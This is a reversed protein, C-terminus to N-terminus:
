ASTAQQTPREPQKTGDRQAREATSEADTGATQGHTWAAIQNERLKAFKKNTHVLSLGLADALDPQRFPLPMAAGQALGLAIGRRHLRLLAWAVRELATRQGVSLLADGLFHEEVAALWTIDLARDPHSKFFDWFEGRDFVCLTMDTAAVVSHQMESMMAAQLGIFDGPFIFNIVQRNGNPLTKYRLGMGSLATYLQPANSGEMLLTTGASVRLEGKKFDEMQQLDQDSKAKFLDIKRLPCHTCKTTMPADM